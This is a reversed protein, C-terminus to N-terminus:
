IEIFKITKMEESKMFYNVEDQSNFYKRFYMNNSMRFTIYPKYYVVKDKCILEGDKEIEEKTIFEENPYGLYYFGEKKRWFLFRRAGRFVYSSHPRNLVIEVSCIQQINIKDKSNM